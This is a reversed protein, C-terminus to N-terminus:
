GWPNSRVVNVFSGRREFGDCGAGECGAPRLPWYISGAPLIDAGFFNMDPLTPLINPYIFINEPSFSVKLGPSVFMQM